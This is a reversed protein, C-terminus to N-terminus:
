GSFGKDPFPIDFRWLIEVIILAIIVTLILIVLQSLLTYFISRKVSIKSKLFYYFIVPGNVFPILTFISGVLLWYIESLWGGLTGNNIYECHPFCGFFIILILKGIVLNILIILFSLGFFHRNRKM